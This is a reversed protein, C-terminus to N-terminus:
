EADPNKKIKNLIPIKDVINDMTVIGCMICILLGFTWLVESDIPKEFGYAKEVYRVMGYFFGVALLRRISLKGDKGELPSLLYNILKSM